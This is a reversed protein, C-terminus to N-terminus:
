SHLAHSDGFLEKSVIACNPYRLDIIGNFNGNIKSFIKQLRNNKLITSLHDPHIRIYIKNKQPSSLSLVIEKRFFIKDDVHTLDITQLSLNHNKCLAQLPLLKILTSTNFLDEDQNLIAMPLHLPPFYPSLPFTAGLADIGLNQGIAAIPTRLTYEVGLTSPFLKWVKASEVAPCALIKPTLHDINTLNTNPAIELIQELLSSPLSYATTARAAIQSIYWKPNIALSETFSRHWQWVLVLSLVSLVIIRM